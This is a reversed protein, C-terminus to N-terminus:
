HLYCIIDNILLKLYSVELQWHLQLMNTNFNTESFINGNVNEVYKVKYSFYSFHGTSTWRLCHVNLIKQWSLM